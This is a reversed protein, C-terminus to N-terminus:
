LKIIKINEEEKEKEKEVVFKYEEFCHIEEEEIEYEVEPINNYFLTVKPNARINQPYFGSLYLGDLSQVRSLAVYTQGYEFITRGIDMEAMSLTAGQIKHITIAWALCLPLQGIALCPYEESQWYQMQIERTIGNAFKVLPIPIGLKMHFDMIIGLSGNCIGNDLDLNTTCMVSAGIKLSLLEMCPSNMQLNRMENEQTTKSLTSSRELDETSIVRNSNDLYTRCNTKKIINYEYSQGPLKDFMLQNYYDVKQKTPFLKTPICGNHKTTDYERHIYTELLQIQTETIQGKRINLLISQFQPDTQRFMTILEIHNDITFTEIWQLSEFCFESECESNGVPPLQYFDGTFVLQIGGFPKSNRRIKKGIINLLEFISKSMMSVEDIILVDTNKWSKTAKKNKFIDSIIKEIEGKGQRIGSWSHITRANCKSLLLAACGTLACVQVKKKYIEASKVIHQILETKGTGAPGTVFINNGHEFSQLAYTQEPSLKMTKEQKRKEKKFSNLTLKKKKTKKKIKSSIKKHM